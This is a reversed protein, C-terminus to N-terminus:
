LQICLRSHFYDGDRIDNKLSFSAWYVFCGSILLRRNHNLRRFIFKYDGVLIERQALEM